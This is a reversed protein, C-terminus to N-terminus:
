GGVGKVRDFMGQLDPDIDEGGMVRRTASVNRFLNGLERPNKRVGLVNEHGNWKMLVDDDSRNKKEKANAALRDQQFALDRDKQEAIEQARQDHLDKLDQKLAAEELLSQEIHADLDTISLNNDSLKDEDLIATKPATAERARIRPILPQVEDMDDYDNPRTDLKKSPQSSTEKTHQLPRKSGTSTTKSTPKVTTTQSLPDDDDDDPLTLGTLPRARTKSNCIPSPEAPTPNDRPEAKPRKPIAAKPAATLAALPETVQKKPRGRMKAWPPSPAIIPESSVTRADPVPTLPNPITQHVAIHEAVQKRPRGRKKTPQSRPSKPVSSATIADQDRPLPDSITSQVVEIIKNPAGKRSRTDKEMETTPGNIVKALVPEVDPVSKRNPRGRPKPGKVVDERDEAIDVNNPVNPGNPIQSKKPRGRTKPAQAPESTGHPAENRSEEITPPPKQLNESLLRGRQRPVVPPAATRETMAIDGDTATPGPDLEGPAKIAARKKPKQTQDISKRKRSKRKPATPAEIPQSGVEELVPSVDQPAENERDTAEPHMVEKEGQIIENVVAKPKQGRKKRQDVVDVNATTRTPATSDHSLKTGAKRKGRPLNPEISLEPTEAETVVAGLIAEASVPKTQVVTQDMVKSTKKPRQIQGISRRKRRRPAKLVLQTPLDRSPDNMINHYEMNDRSTNSMRGTIAELPETQVLQVERSRSGPKRPETIKKVPSRPKKRISNQGISKRKKRRKVQPMESSGSVDEIRAPGIKRKRACVGEGDQQTTKTGPPDLAPGEHSTGFEDEAAKPTRRQATAPRYKSVVRPTAKSIRPTQRTPHELQPNKNSRTSNQAKLPSRSVTPISPLQLDFTLNINRTGAGRQRMLFREDRSGAMVLSPAAEALTSMRVTMAPVAIADKIVKCVPEEEARIERLRWLSDDSWGSTACPM